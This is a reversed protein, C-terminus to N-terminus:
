HSVVALRQQCGQRLWPPLIIENWKWGWLPFCFGHGAKQVVCLERHHSLLLTKSRPTCRCHLVTPSLPCKAISFLYHAPLWQNYKNYEIHQGSLLQSLRETDELVFLLCSWCLWLGTDSMRNKDSIVINVWATICTSILNAAPSCLLHGRGPTKIFMELMDTQGATRQLHRWTKVFLKQEGDASITSIILISSKSKEARRWNTSTDGHQQIGHLSAETSQRAWLRRQQINEDKGARSPQHTKTLLLPGRTSGARADWQSGDARGAGEARM